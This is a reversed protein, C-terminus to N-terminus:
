LEFKSLYYSPIGKSLGSRYIGIGKNSAYPYKSQINQAKLLLEAETFYSDNNASITEAPKTNGSKGMPLIAIKNTPINLSSFPINTRKMLEQESNYTTQDWDYDEYCCIRHPLDSRHKKLEKKTYAETRENVTNALFYNISMRYYVSTKAKVHSWKNSHENWTEYFIESSDFGIVRIIRKIHEFVPGHRTPKKFSSNYTRVEGLHM